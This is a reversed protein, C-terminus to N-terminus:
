APIVSDGLRIRGPEVVDCYVGFPLPETVGERRYAALTDLTDFAFEGTDPNRTTVVCRGVDGLPALVAEGVRVRGGIWEDEEHPGVGDIELLMRFQRGDPAEDAGAEERLRKLSARSVISAWGGRDAGRDVAGRESWLLTLPEGALESLAEQWPGPVRRSPHPQRYLTTEVPEGPEVTGELRRGDPFTLALHRTSEDWEPRVRMLQPFRKGNALRGDADLLWLRRDGAVGTQTLEVEDPHVLGLAKVPAISIRSVRGEV